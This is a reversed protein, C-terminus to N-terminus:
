TLIKIDVVQERPPSVKCNLIINGLRLQNVKM